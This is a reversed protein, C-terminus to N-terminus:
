MKALVIAMKVHERAVPPFATDNGLDMPGMASGQASLMKSFVPRALLGLGVPAFKRGFGSSSRRCDTRLVWHASQRFPDQRIARKSPCLGALLPRPEPTAAESYSNRPAPHHCGFVHSWSIRGDSHRPLRYEVEGVVLAVQTNPRFFADHGRCLCILFIHGTWSAGSQVQQCLGYRPGWGEDDWSFPKCKAQVTREPMPGPAMAGSCPDTAM